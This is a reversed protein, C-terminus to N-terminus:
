ATVFKVLDGLGSGIGDPVVDLEEVPTNLRNVWFTPYGFWRAGAADWGAFAAFAIEEKKLKFADVGMQYARPDPKFARVKDTSLHGELLSQLGSNSVAADLMANTLNSLFAMRIGADRLAKLAPLVDPWAKLGLYSQMLQDRQGASMDIKLMRAAFVLSEETVQWFDVYHGGLTRLWTYEFQRTRWAKGLEPGRGPFIEETKAAVPRPDIIPFGDFAIAKIKTSRAAQAQGVFAIANAAAVGDAVRAVFERRNVLMNERM